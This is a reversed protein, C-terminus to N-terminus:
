NFYNNANTFLSANLAKWEIVAICKQGGVHCRDFPCICAHEFHSTVHLPDISYWSACICNINTKHRTWLVNRLWANWTADRWMLYFETRNSAFRCANAVYQSSPRVQSLCPQLVGSNFKKRESENWIVIHFPHLWWLEMVENKGEFYGNQLNFNWIKEPPPCKGGSGELCKPRHGKWTSGLSM